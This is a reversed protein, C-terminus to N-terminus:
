CATGHVRPWPPASQDVPASVAADHMRQIADDLEDAHELRWADSECLDHTGQPDVLRRLGHPSAWLYAGDGIQRVRYGRHTKARHHSRSLPAVNHDGTQGPPGGPDYPVVHDDDYRGSITNTGAAYPFVDGVCRLRTRETVTTPFEYANVSVHDELDLVPKVSVHAHGLLAVLQELLIPGIGEVRAVAASSGTVASEHLHVYVVARGHPRRPVLEDAGIELLAYVDDPRALWGFAIARLEDHSLDDLAAPLDPHHDRLVQPHALLADAIREVIADIWAADGPEVRSFVSRTGTELDTRSVWVGKRRRGEDLRAAHAAPDAEIVKAEAVALVRAPSEGGIAAAVAADVIRVQERDLRRSMRAVKCAVWPECELAVVQAWTLPLRHRLDLADGLTARTSAPHTQRAIALEHVCLEQVGPTGDGGLEVLRDGGRRTPVAGPREQPDEGHLDAWRLMLLLDEVQATRKRVLAAESAALVDAPGLGDLSSQM